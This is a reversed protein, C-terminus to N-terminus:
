PVSGCKGRADGLNMGLIRSQGGQGPAGLNGRLVAVPFIRSCSLVTSWVKLSERRPIRHRRSLPRREMLGPCERAVEDHGSPLEKGKDEHCEVHGRQGNEALLCDRWSVRRSVVAVCRPSFVSGPQRGAMIPM